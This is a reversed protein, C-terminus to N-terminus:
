KSEVPFRTILGLKHQQILLADSNTLGKKGDARKVLPEENNAM